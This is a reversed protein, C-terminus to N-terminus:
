IGQDVAREHMGIAREFMEFSAREAHVDKGAPRARPSAGRIRPFPPDVGGCSSQVDRELGGNGVLLEISAGRGADDMPLPRVTDRRDPIALRHAALRVYLEGAVRRRRTGGRSGSTPPRPWASLKNLSPIM